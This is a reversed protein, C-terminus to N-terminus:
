PPPPQTRAVSSFGALSMSVPSTQPLTPPQPTWPTSPHLTPPWPPASPPSPLSPQPVTCSNITADVPAHAVHAAPPATKQQHLKQKINLYYPIPCTNEQCHKAHYCCLAMFQKCVGCGGNTKRQCGKTHQVVWRMEQCSPQPCNANRYQRAHKLSQICCQIAQHQWEWFSRFQPEGAVVTAFSILHYILGTIACQCAYGNRIVRPRQPPRM